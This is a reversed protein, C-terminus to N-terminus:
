TAHSLSFSCDISKWKPKFFNRQSSCLHKRIRMGAKQLQIRRYNERNIFILHNQRSILHNQRSILALEGEFHDKAEWLEYLPFHDIWRLWPM